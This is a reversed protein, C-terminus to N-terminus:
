LIYPVKVWKYVHQRKIGCRRDMEIEEDKPEQHPEHSPRNGQERLPPSLSGYHEEPLDGTSEKLPWLRSLEQLSSRRSSKPMGNRSCGVIRFIPMTMTEKINRKLMKMGINFVFFHVTICPTNSKPRTVRAANNRAPTNKM